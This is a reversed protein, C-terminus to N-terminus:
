KIINWTLVVDMDEFLDKVENLRERIGRFTMTGEWDYEFILLNERCYEQASDTDDSNFTWSIKLEELKWQKTIIWEM